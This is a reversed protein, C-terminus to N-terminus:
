GLHKKVVAKIQQSEFPKLLYDEVGLDKCQQIISKQGVSTLIVVKLMPFESGINQLINIGEFESEQMVIDLFVLDPHETKIQQMATAANNAEIIQITKGSFSAFVNNIEDRLLKRFFPSDDVILIKKM